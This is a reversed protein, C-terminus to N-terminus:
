SFYPDVGTGRYLLHAVIVKGKTYGLLCSDVSPDDSIETASKCAPVAFWGTTPKAPDFHKNERLVYKNLPVPLDGIAIDLKAPTSFPPGAVFSVEPASTSDVTTDIVGVTGWTCPLTLSSDATGFSLSTQQPVTTSVGATAINGGNAACTGDATTGDVITVPLPISPANTQGGGKATSSIDFGVSASVGEVTGTTTGARFTAYRKVTQGPNVTGLSCSVTAGDASTTCDSSTGLPNTISGDTPFTFTIVVHTAAGSSANPTFKAAVLGQEGVTLSSPGEFATFNFASTGATVVSVLYLGCAAAIAVAGLSLSAVRRSM